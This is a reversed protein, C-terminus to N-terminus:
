RGIVSLLEEASVRVFAGPRIQAEHGVGGPIVTFAIWPRDRWIMWLWLELPTRASNMGWGADEFGQQTMPTMTAAEGAAVAQAESPYGGIVAPWAQKASPALILVYSV